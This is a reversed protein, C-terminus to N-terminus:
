LAARLIGHWTTLRQKIWVPNDDLHFATDPYPVRVDDFVGQYKPEPFYFSHPAKHGLILLFPQDKKQQQLWDIALDTVVTTYYGPVVKREGNNVRFVTDFYKGQGQHTIFHDFGRVSATTRKAWTGSGSIRQPTAKVKCSARSPPCSRPTIRSTTPSGM